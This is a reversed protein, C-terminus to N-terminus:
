NFIILVNQDKCLKILIYIVNPVYIFYYSLFLNLDNILTGGGGGGGGGAGPPALPPGGGGGGGGGPKLDVVLWVTFINIIFEFM